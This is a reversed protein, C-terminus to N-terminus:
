LRQLFQNKKLIFEEENIYGQDRLKGLREISSFIEEQTMAQDSAQSVESSSASHTSAPPSTNAQANSPIAPNTQVPNQLQGQVPNQISTFSDVPQFGYQPQSSEVSGLGNAMGSIIPLQELFVTGYQSTFTVSMGNGQQQGVGGIQHDLTNYVTVQGNFDVALRQCHPFIAYRVNNQAGSSSPVGLEAPWWNFSTNTVPEFASPAPTAFIMGQGSALINSIETCLNNVTNQLGTNFMDGVMTMGGQMWQGSGGLEPCVFQAMSGNGNIVAQIMTIVADQSIGYRYSLDSVVGQGFDTLQSM